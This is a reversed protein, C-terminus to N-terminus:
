RWLLLWVVTALWAVALVAAALRWRGLAARLAPVQGLQGLLERSEKLLRAEEVERAHARKGEVAERLWAGLATPPPFSADAV